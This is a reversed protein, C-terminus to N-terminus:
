HQANIEVCEGRGHEHHLSTGLIKRVADDLWGPHSRNMHLQLETQNKASAACIYCTVPKAIATLSSYKRRSLTKM